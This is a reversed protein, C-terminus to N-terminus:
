TMRLRTPLEVSAAGVLIIVVTAPAGMLPPTATTPATPCPTPLPADNRFRPSKPLRSSDDLADDVISTGVMVVFPASPSGAAGTIPRLRCVPRDCAALLLMV